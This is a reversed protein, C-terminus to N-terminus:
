NIALYSCVFIDLENLFSRVDSQYGLFFVNNVKNNKLKTLLKKHYRKQSNYVSGVIIIKLNEYTSNLIKVAKILTELGKVPSINAVTGILFSDKKFRKRINKNNFHKPSFFNTNVPQAIVSSIKENTIFSKYYQRTRESAYVYNEVYKSLFRFVPHLSPALYTDNLHWVVKKGVLKGSILGKFQWAGGVLYIIDFNNAKIYNKLIYIEYFFYYLYKIIQKISKSISTLRLCKYDVGLEEFKKITEESSNKPIIVKISIEKQILKAIHAIYLHPGGIRGEEFIFMIKM